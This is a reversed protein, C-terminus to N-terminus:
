HTSVQFSWVCKRDPLQASRYQLLTQFSSQLFPVSYSSIPCCPHLLARDARCPTSATPSTWSFKFFDSDTCARSRRGLLKAFGLVLMLVAQGLPKLRSISFVTTPIIDVHGRGPTDSERVPGHKAPGCVQWALSAWLCGVYCNIRGPM